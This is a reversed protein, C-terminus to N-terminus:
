KSQGQINFLVWEDGTLRVNLNTTADMMLIPRINNFNPSAKTTYTIPIEYNVHAQPTFSFREQFKTFLKQIQERNEIQIQIEIQDIWDSNKLKNTLFNQYPRDRWIDVTTFYVDVQTHASPSIIFYAPFEDGVIALAM